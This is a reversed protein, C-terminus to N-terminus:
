CSGGPELAARGTAQIRLTRAHASGRGDCLVMATSSSSEGRANYSVLGPPGAITLDGQVAGSVYLIEGDAPDGTALAGEAFVIWGAHWEGTGSCTYGNVSACVSVPAHRKTAESRAYMLSTLLDNARSTMRNQLILTHLAPAAVTLLIALIVLAMLLEILTIGRNHKRSKM